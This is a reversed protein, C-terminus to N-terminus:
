THEVKFPDIIRCSTKVTLYYRLIIFALPHYGWLKFGLSEAVSTSLGATHVGFVLSYNLRNYLRKKSHGNQLYALSQHSPVVSLGMACKHVIWLTPSPVHVKLASGSFRQKLELITM